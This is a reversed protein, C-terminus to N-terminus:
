RKRGKKVKRKGKGRRKLRMVKYGNAQNKTAGCPDECRM